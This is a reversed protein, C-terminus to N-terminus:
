RDSLDLTLKDSSADLEQADLTEAREGILDDALCVHIIWQEPIWDGDLRDIEFTCCEKQGQTNRGRGVPHGRKMIKTRARGVCTKAGLAEDKKAPNSLDADAAAM